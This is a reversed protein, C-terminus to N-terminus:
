EETDEKVKEQNKGSKPAKAPTFPHALYGQLKWLKLQVGMTRTRSVMFLFGERFVDAEEKLRAIHGPGLLAHMDHVPIKRGFRVDPIDMIARPGPGDGGEGFWLVCGRHGNYKDDKIDAWTDCRVVYSNRTADESLQAYYVLEDVVRRRMLELVLAGMDERWVLHKMVSNFKSSSHNLSILRRWGSSEASRRKDGQASILDERALMYSTPGAPREKGRPKGATQSEVQDLNTTAPDSPQQGAATKEDAGPQREPPSAPTRPALSTPVYWPKGTEPHSVLNFDQLFYKPIVTGTAPCRRIDSALAHAWPNRDLQRRWKVKKYVSSEPAKPMKYKMRAEHFTPDMLPSLPLDGVPTSITKRELDARDVM